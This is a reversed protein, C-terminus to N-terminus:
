TLRFINFLLDGSSSAMKRNCLMPCLNLEQGKADTGRCGAWGVPLRREPGMVKRFTAVRERSDIWQLTFPCEMSEADVPRMVLQEGIDQWSESLKKVQVTYGCYAETADVLLGPPM